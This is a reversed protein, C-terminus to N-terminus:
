GLRLVVEIPHCPCRAGVKLFVSSAQPGPVHAWCETFEMGPALLAGTRRYKPSQKPPPWPAGLRVGGVQQSPGVKHLNKLRPPLNDRIMKMAKLPPENFYPPEGDVMEIVMVGLSWIDVQLLPLSSHLLSRSEPPAQPPVAGLQAKAEKSGSARPGPCGRQHLRGVGCM